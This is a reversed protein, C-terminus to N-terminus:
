EMEKGNSVYCSGGVMQEAYDMINDILRIRVDEVSENDGGAIQVQICNQIEFMYTKM